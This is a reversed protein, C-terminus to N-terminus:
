NEFNVEPVAQAEEPADYFERAKFGFMGAILNTPFVQLKTNFNRTQGNYFRRAAQIKDEADTLNRQLDLFNDSARLQPYNEAVAFLSKLTESLMNEAKAHEGPTQAGMASARAETVKTFVGEEHKAYGKVTQVLNPILNYRRKLQVEIDSWAEHVRNRAHVLGNYTLIFWGILVVLVILVIWLAEM